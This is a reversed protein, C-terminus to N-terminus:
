FVVVKADQLMGAFQVDELPKFGEVSAGPALRLRSSDLFYTSMGDFGSLRALTRLGFRYGRGELLSLVGGDVLVFDVTHGLGSFMMASREAEQFYAGQMPPHTLVIVVRM